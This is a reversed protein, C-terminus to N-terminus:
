DLGSVDLALYNYPRANIFNVVGSGFRSSELGDTTQITSYDSMRAVVSRIEYGEVPDTGGPGELFIIDLKLAQQTILIAVKNNTFRYNNVITGVAPMVASGRIDGVVRMYNFSNDFALQGEPTFVQLGVGTDQPVPQPSDYVYYWIPAPVPLAVTSRVAGMHFNFRFSGNGLNTRWVRTNHVCHVAIVPNVADTVIVEFKGPQGPFEENNPYGISGMGNEKLIYNKYLGDIQVIKDDNTAQFGADM